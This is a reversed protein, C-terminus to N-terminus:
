NRFFILWATMAFIATLCSYIIPAPFLHEEIKWAIFLLRAIISLFVGALICILWAPFYSGLVDIEPSHAAAPRPTLADLALLGSILIGPRIGLYHAHRQLNM